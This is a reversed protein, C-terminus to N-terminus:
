FTTPRIKIVLLNAQDTNPIANARILIPVDAKLKQDFSWNQTRQKPLVVPISQTTTTHIASKSAKSEQQRYLPITLSSKTWNEVDVQGGNLNVQYYGEESTPKVLFSLETGDGVTSLIPTITDLIAFGTGGSVVLVNSVYTTMESLRIIQPTDVIGTIGRQYTTTKANKLAEKWDKKLESSNPLRSRLAASLISRPGQIQEFEIIYSQTQRKIRANIKETLRDHHDKTTVLGLLSSGAQQTSTRQPFFIWRASPPIKESEFFVPLSDEIDNDELQLNKSTISSTGTIWSQGDVLPRDPNFGILWKIDHFKFYKNESLIHESYLSEPSGLRHARVIVLAGDHDDTHAVILAQKSNDPLIFSSSLFSDQLTPLQINWEEAKSSKLEGKQRIESIGLDIWLHNQHPISHIQTLLRTGLSIKDSVPISVPIVGTQNVEQSSIFVQDDIHSASLRQGIRGEVIMLQSRRDSLLQLFTDESLIRNGQQWGPHISQLASPHTLICELRVKTKCFSNLSSTAAEFRKHFDQSSTVEYVGDGLHKFHSQMGPDFFEPYREIFTDRDFEPGSIDDIYIRPNHEEDNEHVMFGFYSLNTIEGPLFLDDSLEGTRVFSRMPQFPKFEQRRQEDEKSSRIKLPWTLLLEKYENYDGRSINSLDYTKRVNNDKLVLGEGWTLHPLSLALGLLLCTRFNKM